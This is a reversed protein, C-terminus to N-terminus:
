MAATWALTAWGLGVTPLGAVGLALARGIAPLVGIPRGTSRRVVRLGALAKGPTRGTTGLVIALVLGVLVVVGAFALVAMLVDDSVLWVGAAAAAGLGWGLVRDVLFATFRRDM